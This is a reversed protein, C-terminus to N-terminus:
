CGFSTVVGYLTVSPDLLLARRYDDRCLDFLAGCWTLCCHETPILRMPFTSRCTTSAHLQQNVGTREQQTASMQPTLCLVDSWDRGGVAAHLARSLVCLLGLWLSRYDDSSQSLSVVAVVYVVYVVYSAAVVAVIVVVVVVVAVVAVVAFWCHVHGGDISQQLVVVFDLFSFL